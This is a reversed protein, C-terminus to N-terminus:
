ANLYITENEKRIINMGKVANGTIPLIPLAIAYKNDNTKIYVKDEIINVNYDKNGLTNPIKFRRYYGESAESALNIEDQFTIAVEKVNLNQREKIRDAMNNQIAIFFVTFFFLVFAVLIMFEISAQGKKM